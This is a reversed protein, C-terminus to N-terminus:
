PVSPFTFRGADGVVAFVHQEFAIWALSGVCRGHVDGLCWQGHIRGAEFCSITEASLVQVHLHLKKMVLEVHRVNQEALMGAGAGSPAHNACLASLVKRVHEAESGVLLSQLSAQLCKNQWGAYESGCDLLGAGLCNRVSSLSVKQCQADLMRRPFYFVRDSDSSNYVHHVSHLQSDHRCYCRHEHKEEASPDLYKAFNMRYLSAEKKGDCFFKSKAQMRRGQTKMFNRRNRQQQKVSHFHTGICEVKHNESFSISSFTRM